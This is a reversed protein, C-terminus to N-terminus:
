AQTRGEGKPNRGTATATSDTSNNTRQQDRARSGSAQATQEAGTQAKLDVPKDGGDRMPLRMKDRVENPVIVQMRLYREDIQSQTNEDTLSLENLKFKFMDTQEKIIRTIVKEINKQTPRSVQEKFTRDSALAAAVGVGAAGGVKTIPVAHAMLIDDRNAKRYKDFSGEQVGAEVPNMQFDVKNDQSDGPLPIYLTRHNQGKLGTQLFRFLESEAQKSLKAGKLTVIFRPVAKNEFYDLNYKGALQDGVVAAAASVMDPVGYYSNKPTYKKLHIIENPRGDATIPNSQNKDQFNTFFVVNQNVIQVYGDRKRRVRITTAPVHGMYGIEGRNTRGIEIYGNGVADYDTMVKELVHTFADTDNLSELWDTLAIKQREIRNHALRKANDSSANDLADLVNQTVEFGYGLSVSNAVKANIAAHNAYSSDYFGALEDLNYPPLVVDLLGYATNLAPTPLLQKSQADQVGSDVKTIRALRRKTKDNFGDYFRITEADAAFDDIVTKEIILNRDTRAYVEVDEQEETEM